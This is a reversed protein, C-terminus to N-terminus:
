GHPPAPTTAGPAPGCSVPPCTRSEARTVLASIAIVDTSCALATYGACGLLGIVCTDGQAVAWAIAGDSPGERVIVREHSFDVAPYGAPSADGLADYFKHLEEDSSIV